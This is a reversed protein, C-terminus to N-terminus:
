PNHILLRYFKPGRAPAAADLWTINSGTGPQFANTLGSWVVFNTTWQVQYSQGLASPWNLLMNTGTRALTLRAAVVPIQAPTVDRLGVNRTTAPQTFTGYMRSQGPALLVTSYNTYDRPISLTLSAATTNSLV